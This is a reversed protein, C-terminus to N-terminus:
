HTAQGWTNFTYSGSVSGTITLTGQYSQIAAPTFYLNFSCSSGAAVGSCNSQGPTFVGLSPALTLTEATPTNNYVTIPWPGATANATNQPGFDITSVGAQQDQNWNISYGGSIATGSVSLAYTSFSGSSGTGSIVLTASYAGTAQGSQPTPIVDFTCSAGAALTSCTNALTFAGSVYNNVGTFNYSIGTLAQGSYNTVTVPWPSNGISGQPVAQFTVFPWNFGLASGAWGSVSLSGTVAGSNGSATITGSLINTGSTTVETALPSFVVSFQCSAGAGLTQGSCTDTGSAIAFSGSGAFTVVPNALTTSTGSSNTLTVPWVSSIAGVSVTPTFNLFPWNFTLSSSVATGSVAISTSYNTSTATSATLTATITTGTPSGGNHPNFVVNFTCSAGQALTSSCTNGSISFNTTDSLAILPTAVTVGTQNQLKVPWAGSSGGYAVPQGWNIFPWNFNLQGNVSANIVTVTNSTSGTYNSDGNYTATITDTGVWVLGNYTAVGNVLSITGLTGQTAGTSTASFTVTGTPTVGSGTVSATLIVSQGPVITGTSAALTTSSPDAVNIVVTSSSASYNSDGRFIATITNSGIALHTAQITFSYTITGFFYDYPISIQALAKGQTSLSISGSSLNGRSPSSVLVTITTSDTPYISNSSASVTTNTAAPTVTLSIAPSTSTNFSSDGSYQATLNYHGAPLYYEAMALYGSPMLYYLAQNGVGVPSTGSLGGGGGAFYVTGTAVGQTGNKVEDASTGNIQATLPSLYWAGYPFSYSHGGSLGQNIGQYIPYATCSLATSSSEPSITVNIPTSTSTADSADGAYNAQVTYNGGPLGNYTASGSGDILSFGFQGDNLTGGSSQNATDIIGILGTASSPTVAANFTLPTGHAANVAATSGNINLTTTTIAQSVSNWNNVMAAVDISGLGSALDYVMGANYGTIFSNVGCNPSGSTCVVSNDGSTIDHFVTSYESQALQYLVSDAQGLRAGGQAQSVLALMGAFAPASASTGGFGSVTSNSTLQGNTTQCDTYTTSSGNAVSDSCVAWVAQYFGNGSFLSVDPLDRVSDNPTLLSQFSPKVYGGLCNGTGDQTTCSSVGGGAAIVNTASSSNTYAINNAISSNFSTSDNWPSEPIYSKATRYYVASGTSATTVYTSFNAPLTNFDTGGVAITWPTSALGNVALGNSATNESDADCGASGSDGSSVTISIGQAAAQSFWENLQGNVTNGLSLECEGYSISLISVTNDDIARLLSGFLDTSTYYYIKAKPAIGGAIETDLLAEVEDNTIIIGSAGPDTGEVIVTPLNATAASEGLFAIRYNEVDQLTLDSDGVIGINVGTGDYTKGSYNPNLIVNPTDYITAADAPVVYLISTNNSGTQTLEPKITHTTTDFRATGGLKALSKPRFDHLPGIGAIVPALAAPIQPDTTNAYHSEGNVVFKHISTHFATQVQDMTGSFQIVNRAQSINDIQFGRSQLWAKVTQLDSDAIGYAAGYQAPTLWKHYNPSSKEQLSSLYQELAQQQTKSRQLVLTIRGSPMSVPVSGHDFRARALPHVNGKFTIHNSEDIHEVIRNVVASPTAVQALAPLTVIVGLGVATFFLTQLMKREVTM